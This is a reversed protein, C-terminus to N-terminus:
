PKSNAKKFSYPLGNKNARKQKVTWKTNSYGDRQKKIDRLTQSIYKNIDQLGVSGQQVKMNLDEPSHARKRREIRRSRKMAQDEYPSENFGAPEEKFTQLDTETVSGRQIEFVKGGHIIQRVAPRVMDMGFKQCGPQKEKCHDCGPITLKHGCKSDEMKEPSNATGDLKCVKMVPEEVDNQGQGDNSVPEDKQVKETESKRKRTRNDKSERTDAVATVSSQDKAKDKDNDNSSHRVKMSARSRSQIKLNDENSTGDTNRHKNNNTKKNKVATEQKQKGVKLKDKSGSRSRTRRSNMNDNETNDIGKQRTKRGKTVASKKDSIKEQKDTKQSSENSIKKKNDRFNKLSVSKTPTSKILREKARRTEPKNAHESREGVTKCVAKNESCKTKSRLAKPPSPTNEWKFPKNKRHLARLAKAKNTLNEESPEFDEEDPKEDNHVGISEENENHVVISAENAGKLKKENLMKTKEKQLSSDKKLGAEEISTNVPNSLKKIDSPTVTAPKGVTPLAKVVKVIRSPFTINSLTNKDIMKIKTGSVLNPFQPRSCKIASTVSKSVCAGMTKVIQVAMTSVTTKEPVSCAFIPRPLPQNVRPKISEDKGFDRVCREIVKMKGDKTGSNKGSSGSSTSYLSATDFNEMKNESDSPWFSTSPMVQNNAEKLNNGNDEFNFDSEYPKVASKRRASRVTETRRKFEEDTEDARQIEETQNEQKLGKNEISEMKLNVIEEEPFSQSSQTKTQQNNGIVEKNITKLETSIQRATRQQNSKTKNAKRASMEKGQVVSLTNLTQTSGSRRFLDKGQSNNQEVKTSQTNNIGLDEVATAKRETKKMEKRDKVNCIEEVIGTPANTTIKIKELNAQNDYQDAHMKRTGPRNLVNTEKKQNDEKKLSKTEVFPNLPKKHICTAWVIMGKRRPSPIEFVKRKEETEKNLIEKVWKDLTPDEEDNELSSMNVLEVKGSTQTTPDKNAKSLTSDIDKDVISSKAEEGKNSIKKTTNEEKVISAEVEENKSNMEDDKFEVINESGTNSQQHNSESLDSKEEVDECSDTRQRKTQPQSEKERHESNQQSEIRIYEQINLNEERERKDKQACETQKKEEMLSEKLHLTNQNDYKMELETCEEEDIVTLELDAAESINEDSGTGDKLNPLFSQDVDKELLDQEQIQGNNDVCIEVSANRCFEVNLTGTVGHSEESINKIIDSGDEHILEYIEAKNVEDSPECAMNIEASTPYLNANAGSYINKSNYQHEEIVHDYRGRPEETNHQFQKKVVNKFVDKEEFHAQFQVEPIPKEFDVAIQQSREINSDMSNQVLTKLKSEETFNLEHLSGEKLVNDTNEFTKTFDLNENKNNDEENEERQETTSEPCSILSIDSSSSISTQRVLRVKHNKNDLDSIELCKDLNALTERYGTDSILNGDVSSNGELETTINDVMEKESEVKDKVSLKITINEIQMEQLPKEEQEVVPLRNQCINTINKVPKLEGQGAEEVSGPVELLHEEKQTVVTIIDENINADNTITEIEGKEPEKVGVPEEHLPKEEQIVATVIDENINADNTITEIEGKETEEVGIPEEHLPKEEQIVTTVIDKNIITDNITEIEGKETEEVGIPDEHLPKEEQIVATVIDKNIITDNMTEIEGKETEEVGIPEEHLPKEEQIVATVIDKNIITDNMTEIEGKETEEVGIPEEHLPKEEQIVVTVIDQNIKTDNLVTEIEGKETEESSHLENPELLDVLSVEENTTTELKPEKITQDVGKVHGVGQLVESSTVDILEFENAYDENIKTVGLKPKISDIENQASLQLFGSDDKEKSQILFNDNEIVDKISIESDKRTKAETDVNRQHEVGEGAMNVPSLREKEILHYGELKDCTDQYLIDSDLQEYTRSCNTNTSMKTNTENPDQINVSEQDNVKNELKNNHNTVVEVQINANPQKESLELDSDLEGTMTEIANSKLDNDSVTECSTQVLVCVSETKSLATEQEVNVDFELCQSHNNITNMENCEGVGESVNDSSKENMDCLKTGILTNVETKACCNLLNPMSPLQETEDIQSIEMPVPVVYQSVAVTIKEDSKCVEKSTDITESDELIGTIEFKDTTDEENDSSDSYTQLALLSSNSSAFSEDSGENTKGEDYAVNIEELLTTDESNKLDPSHCPLNNEKPKLTDDTKESVEHRDFDVIRNKEDKEEFNECSINEDKVNTSVRTSGQQLLNDTTLLPEVTESSEPFTVTMNESGLMEHKDNQLNDKTSAVEDCIELLIAKVDKYESFEVVDPQYKIQDISENENGTFITSDLNETEENAEKHPTEVDTGHSENEKSSELVDPQYMIQHICENENEAYIPVISELSDPKSNAERHPREVDIENSSIKDSSGIHEKTTGVIDLVTKNYDIDMDDVTVFAPPEKCALDTDEVIEENTLVKGEQVALTTNTGITDFAINSPDSNPLNNEFSDVNEKHEHIETYQQTQILPEECSISSHVEKFNTEVDSHKVHTEELESAILSNGLNEKQLNDHDNQQGIILKTDPESKECNESSYALNNRIEIVTENTQSKMEIDDNKDIQVQNHLQSFSVQESMNELNEVDKENLTEEVDNRNLANECQVMSSPESKSEPDNLIKNSLSTDNTVSYSNHVVNQDNHVPQTHQVIENENVVKLLEISTHFKSTSSIHQDQLLDKIESTNPSYNINEELSFDVGLEKIETDLSSKVYDTVEDSIGSPHKTPKCDELTADSELKEVNRHTEAISGVEVGENLKQSAENPTMRIKDEHCPMEEIKDINNDSSLQTLVIHEEEPLDPLNSYDPLSFTDGDELVVLTNDYVISNSIESKVPTEAYTEANEIWVDEEEQEQQCANKNLVLEKSTDVQGKTILAIVNTAIVEESQNEAKKEPKVVAFVTGNQTFQNEEVVVQLCEAGSQEQSDIKFTISESVLLQDIFSGDLVIDQILTEYSQGELKDAEKNDSQNNETQNNEMQSSNQIKKEDPVKECAIKHTSKKAIIEDEIVDHKVDKRAIPSHKEIEERSLRGIRVKCSSAECEQILKKEVNDVELAKRVVSIDEIVVRASKLLPTVNIKLPCAIKRGGISEKKVTDKMIKKKGTLDRPPLIPVDEALPPIEDDVCGKHLHIEDLSENTNHTHVNETSDSEYETNCELKETETYRIFEKDYAAKHPMNSSSNLHNEIDGTLTQNSKLFEFEDFDMVSAPLTSSEVETEVESVSESIIESEASKERDYSKKPSAELGAFEDEPDILVTKANSAIENDQHIRNIQSENSAESNNDHKYLEVEDCQSYVKPAQSDFYDANEKLQGYDVNLDDDEEAGILVVKPKETNVIEGESFNSKQKVPVDLQQDNKQSKETKSVDDAKVEKENSVEEDSSETERYKKNAHRKRLKYKRELTNEDASTSESDSEASKIAANRLKRVSLMKVVHEIDTYNSETESDSEEENKSIQRTIIRDAKVDKEKGKGKNKLIHLSTAENYNKRGPSQSMCPRKNKIDKSDEDTNQSDSFNNDNEKQSNSLSRRTIRRKIEEASSEDTDSSKRRQTKGKESLRRIRTSKRKRIDTDELESNDEGSGLGSSETLKDYDIEPRKVARGSRTLLLTGSKGSKKQRAKLSGRTSIAFASKRKKASAILSSRSSSSVSSSRSRTMVQTDSSDDLDSTKKLEEFYNIRKGRTEKGKVMQRALRPAIRRGDRVEPEDGTVQGKQEIKVEKDALVEDKFPSETDSTHNSSCSAQSEDELDSLDIISNKRVLTIERLKEACKKRLELARLHKRRKSLKGFCQQSNIKKGPSISKYNSLFEVKKDYRGIAVRGLVAERHNNFVHEKIQVTQTSPFKKNCFNCFYNYSIQRFGLKHTQIYHSLINNGRGSLGCFRCLKRCIRVSNEEKVRNNIDEYTSLISNQHKKDIMVERSTTNGKSRMKGKESDRKQKEKLVPEIEQGKIETRIKRHNQKIRQIMNQCEDEKDVEKKFKDKQIPEMEDIFYKKKKILQKARLGRLKRIDQPSLQKKKLIRNSQKSIESRDVEKSNKRESVEISARFVKKGQPMVIMADDDDTDQYKKRKKKNTEHETNNRVNQRNENLEIDIMENETKIKSKNEGKVKGEKWSGEQTACKGENNFVNLVKVTGEKNNIIRNLKKQNKEKEVSEKMKQELTSTGIISNIYQEKETEFTNKEKGQKECVKKAKEREEQMKQQMRKQKMLELEEDREMREFIEQQKELEKQKKMRIAQKRREIENFEALFKNEATIRQVKQLETLEIAKDDMAPITPRLAEPIKPIDVFQARKEEAKLKELIEASTNETNINEVAEDKVKKKADKEVPLVTAHSEPNIVEIGSKQTRHTKMSLKSDIDKVHKDNKEILTSLESEATDTEVKDKHDSIVKENVMQKNRKREIVKKNKDSSEKTTNGDKIKKYVDQVQRQSNTVKLKTCQRKVHRCADERVCFTEQCMNCTYTETLKASLNNERCKEVHKSVINENVNIFNCKTCKFMVSFDFDGLKVVKSYTNNEKKLCGVKVHEKILAMSEFKRKCIGCVIDEDSQSKEKFMNQPTCTKPNLHAKLQEHSQFYVGCISCRVMTSPAKLCYNKEHSKLIEACKFTMKCYVCKWKHECLSIKKHEILLQETPFEIDCNVCMNRIKEQHNVTQKLEETVALQPKIERNEREKGLRNANFYTSQNPTLSTHEQQKENQINQQNELNLQTNVASAMLQHVGKDSLFKEADSKLQVEKSTTSPGRTGVQDNNAVSYVPVVPKNLVMRESGENIDNDLALISDLQFEKAGLDVLEPLSHQSASKNSQTPLSFNVNPIDSSIKVEKDDSMLRELIGSGRRPSSVTNPLSSIIPKNPLVTSINTVNASSDATQEFQKRLQLIKQRAEDVSQNAATDKKNVIMQKVSENVSVHTKNTTASQQKQGKNSTKKENPSKSQSHNNPRAGGKKLSSLIQQVLAPSLEPPALFQKAAVPREASSTLAANNSSIPQMIESPVNFSQSVCDMVTNPIGGSIQQTMGGAISPSMIGTLPQTVNNFNVQGVTAVQFGPQQSVVNVFSQSHNMGHNQVIIQQVVPQQLGIDVQPQIGGLQQTLVPEPIVSNPMTYLPTALITEPQQVVQQVSVQEQQVPSFMPQPEIVPNGFQQQITQQQISQPLQLSSIVPQQTADQGLVSMSAAALTNLNLLGEEMLHQGISTSNVPIIPSQFNSHNDSMSSDSKISTISSTPVLKPPSTKIQMQQGSTIQKQELKASTQNLVQLVAQSSEPLQTTFNSGIQQSNIGKPFRKMMDTVTKVLEEKRNPNTLEKPVIMSYVPKMAVPSEGSNRKAVGVKSKAPHKYYYKQKMIGRSPDWGQEGPVLMCKDVKTSHSLSENPVRGTSHSRNSFSQSSSATSSPCPSSYSSNKVNSVEGGQMSLSARRVIEPSSLSHVSSVSGSRELKKKLYSKGLDTDTGHLIPSKQGEVINQGKSGQFTLSLLDSIQSRSPINRSNLAVKAGDIQGQIRATQLKEARQREHMEAIQQAIKACEQKSNGPPRLINFATTKLRKTQESQQVLETKIKNCLQQPINSHSQSTKMQSYSGSKRSSLINPSASHQRFGPPSLPSSFGTPSAMRPSTSHAPPPSGGFPPSMHQQRHHSHANPPQPSGMSLQRQLIPGYSQSGGPASHQRQYSPDKQHTMQQQQKFMEQRSLHQKKVEGPEINPKKCKQLSSLNNKIRERYQTELYISKKLDNITKDLEKVDLAPADGFEQKMNRPFEKSLVKEIEEQTLNKQGLMKVLHAKQIDKPVANKPKKGRKQGTDIKKTVEKDSKVIDLMHPVPQVINEALSQSATRERKLANKLPISSKDNEYDLKYKKCVPILQKWSYEPNLSDPRMQGLLREIEYLTAINIKSNQSAASVNKMTWYLKNVLNLNDMTPDLAFATLGCIRSIRFDYEKLMFAMRVCTKSMALRRTNYEEPDKQVEEREMNGKDINIAFKCLESYLQIFMDGCEKKVGDILVGIQETDRCVKAVTWISDLFREEDKDALYQHHIWLKLLEQTCCTREPKVWDQILFVQALRICLEQNTPTKALHSMVKIGDHCIITECVEQMKGYEQQKYLIFIQHEKIKLDNLLAPHKLSWNCLNLAFEECNEKMMIEIRLKLIDPDEKQIYDLCDETDEEEGSMIKSLIPHTWHSEMLDLILQFKLFGLESLIKHVNEVTTSFNNKVKSDEDLQAWQINLVTKACLGFIFKCLQDRAAGATLNEYISALQNLAVWLVTIQDDYQDTVRQARKLIKTFMDVYAHTSVQPETSKGKYKEAVDRLDKLLVSFDM